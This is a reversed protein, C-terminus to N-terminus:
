NQPLTGVADLRYFGKPLGGTPASIEVVIRNADESIVQQTFGRTGWSGIETAFVPRQTLNGSVGKSIGYRYKFVGNGLIPQYEGNQPGQYPDVGGLFALLAPLGGRLYTSGAGSSLGTSFLWQQWNQRLGEFARYQISSLWVSDSGTWPIGDKQYNWRVTCVGEPLTALQNEWSGNKKSINAMEVGNVTCSLSDNGAQTQTKWCWSLLGPGQYTAELYSQSNNAGGTVTLEGGSGVQWGTGGGTQGLTVGRAGSNPLVSTGTLTIRTDPHNADNTLLSIEAKKVGTTSPAFYLTLTGFEGPALETVSGALISVEGSLVSVVPKLPATGLNRMTFEISQPLNGLPFTLGSSVPAGGQTLEMVPIKPLVTGTLEILPAPTASGPALISLFTSKLGPSSTLMRVTMNVSQNAELYTPADLLQFGCDPLLSLEIEM